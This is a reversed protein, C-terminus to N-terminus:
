FTFGAKKLEELARTRVKEPADLASDIAPLFEEPRQPRVEQGTKDSEAIFEKDEVMAQFANRLAALRDSPMEPPGAFPRGYIQTSLILKMVEKNEGEPMLDMLFPVKMSQLEPHPANAIDLQIKVVNRGLQDKALIKAGDWGWGCVGNVEGTEMALLVNGTSKYGHVLKFNMGALSNLLMPIMSTSGGSAGILIERRFDERSILKERTSMTCTTSMVNLNGIWSFKRVDFKINKSEALQNITLTNHVIGLTSGDRPAINYLNNAQIIGGAGPINRVVVTPNGPIHRGIHRSLLRGYLDYGGGVGSGILVSVTNGKYFAEVTDAAASSLPLMTTLCAGFTASGFKQLM